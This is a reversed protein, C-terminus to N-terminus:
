SNTLNKLIKKSAEQLNSVNYNADKNSSGNILNIKITKTGAKIGCEIDTDRDGITWSQSLNIDFNKEADLLAGISPKRFECPTKFADYISDKHKYSCYIKQINISNKKLINKTYDLIENLNELSTKGKAYSPQNTVIFLLFHYKQLINLSEIVNDQLKFDSIERPSEWENSDKYYINKNIVGDRDLFIAKNPKINNRGM